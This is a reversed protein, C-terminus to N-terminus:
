EEVNPALVTRNIRVGRPCENISQALGHVQARAIKNQLGKSFCPLAGDGARDVRYLPFQCNRTQAKFEFHFRRQFRLFQRAVRFDCRIIPLARDEQGSFAVPLRCTTHSIQFHRTIVVRDPESLSASGAPGRWENQPLLHVRRRHSLASPISLCGPWRAWSPWDQRSM